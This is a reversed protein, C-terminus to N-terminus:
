RGSRPFRSTTRTPTSTFRSKRDSATVNARFSDTPFSVVALKVKDNRRRYEEEVEKDPISLWETVAARLKEVVLARRM